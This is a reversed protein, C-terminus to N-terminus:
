KKALLRLAERIKADISTIEPPLAAVASRAEAATYGLAELVEIVDARTRSVASPFKTGEDIQGIKERLEMILREATKRGVGSIRTFVTPDQNIIGSKIVDLNALSMISLAVKPGIGSVSILMEFFDLEQLTWFGYLALIDERVHTFTYVEIEHNEKADLLMQPIVFVKYGVGGAVLLLYSKHIAKVTGSLYGIM